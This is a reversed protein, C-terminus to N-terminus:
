QQRHVNICESKCSFCFFIFRNMNSFFFNLNSNFNIHRVRESRIPKSAYTADDFDDEIESFEDALKWYSIRDYTSMPPFYYEHTKVSEETLLRRYYQAQSTDSESKTSSSSDSDDSDSTALTETKPDEQDSAPDHDSASSSILVSSSASLDTSEGVGNTDGAM